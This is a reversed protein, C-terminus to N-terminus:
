KNNAYTAIVEVATNKIDQQTFFVKGNSRSFLLTMEALQPILFYPVNQRIFSLLEIVPSKNTKGEIYNRFIENKKNVLTKNNEQIMSITTLPKHEVLSKTYIKDAEAKTMEIKM